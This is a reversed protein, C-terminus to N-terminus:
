SFSDQMVRECTIPVKEKPQSVSRDIKRMYGV